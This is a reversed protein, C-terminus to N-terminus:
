LFFFLFFIILFRFNTWTIIVIYITRSTIRQFFIGVGSQGNKCRVGWNWVIIYTSVKQIRQLSQGNEENVAWEFIIAPYVWKEFSTEFNCRNCCAARRTTNWSGLWWPNKRSVEKTASCSYSFGRSCWGDRGFLPPCKRNSNPCKQPM